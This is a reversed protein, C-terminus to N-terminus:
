GEQKGAKGAGQGGKAADAPPPNKVFAGDGDAVRRRFYDDAEVYRGDPPVARGDPGRVLRGPAPKFWLRQM